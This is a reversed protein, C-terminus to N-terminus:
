RESKTVNSRDRISWFYVPIGLGITMLGALSELPHDQFIFFLIWSGIALFVLPTIPYGWTRYPRIAEPHTVRYVVVGLVTLCSSLTLTFSLYTIVTQFTSGIILALVIAMQFFIAYHPVGQRNRKGLIRFVTLDEGIAQTVRSGALVMSGISSILGISILFGMVRAGWSGFISEAAIYGVELEGVLRAIPTSYLFVFNLLIYLVAVFLTGLFLSRPLSKEPNELESALYVSANWGSYSYTVYVLSIAFPASFFQQFSEPTPYFSIPQPSAIAIGCVIFGLILLVKLVTLVDQFNSGWRLTRTHILSIIVTAGIALPQAMTDADFGPIVSSFYEGFSMAALAIPAAFGVTISLWGSLFGLVPHYIQALYRYEGGSRPMMAGLEGYCLAGCLAFIGGIAWLMLLVFGSKLDVVQFGLSTFVGTGITNAVVLCCATFLSIKRPHGASNENM